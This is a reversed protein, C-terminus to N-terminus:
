KNKGSLIKKTFCHLKKSFSDLFSMKEEYKSQFNDNSKITKAITLIKIKHPHCKELLEICSYITNDTTLIDDVLLINKKRLDLQQTLTLYNSINIRNQINQDSQKYNDTKCLLDITKLNMISFMEKVHNFGRIKDEDVYSPVFVVYYGVYMLNLLPAYKSLFTNKLEIDYCGKFQYILKKIEDDYDYLSLGDYNKIKFKYFKPERRNFCKTCTDDSIFIDSFTKLKISEFCVKCIRTPYNFIKLANKFKMM